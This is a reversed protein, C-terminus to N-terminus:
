GTVLGAPKRARKERGLHRTMKEGIKGEAQNRPSQQKMYRYGSALSRPLHSSLFRLAAPDWCQLKKRRKTPALPYLRIAQTAKTKNQTKKELCSPHKLVEM